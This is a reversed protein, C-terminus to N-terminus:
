VCHLHMSFSQLGRALLVATALDLDVCSTNCWIAVTNRYRVNLKCSTIVRLAIWTGVKVRWHKDVLLNPSKLDRHIIPPDCLHLHLMGKAADMAMNLRKPWDLHM